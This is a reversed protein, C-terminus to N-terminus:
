KVYTFNAVYEIKREWIRRAVQAMAPYQQALYLENQEISHYIIQAMANQITFIPYFIFFFALPFFPVSKYNKGMNARLSTGNGTKNTGSLAWRSWGIANNMRDWTLPLAGSHTLYVHKKMFGTGYENVLQALLLFVQKSFLEELEILHV